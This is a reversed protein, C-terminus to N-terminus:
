AGKKKTNNNNNKKDLRAHGKLATRWLYDGVIPLDINGITRYSLNNVNLIHKLLEVEKHNYVYDTLIFDENLSVFAAGGQREGWRMISTEAYLRFKDGKPATDWDILIVTAM